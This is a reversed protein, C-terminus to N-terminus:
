NKEHKIYIKFKSGKNLESEVKIKGGMAEVQNKTIFLGIGRADKNGHFTKYMGFLKSGNRKLDIGIGNDEIELVVFEAKVSASFSIIPAREMSRYKIGNTIFNLLISDIYAPIALVVIDSNVNNRITVGAEKALLSVNGTASEIANFLNIPVLKEEFTTNILVVENLNAITEKLNDTAKKLLQIYHDEAVGENEEIYLDLVMDINGTHSRLNHSVIHAFNKLRENQDTTIELLSKLEKAAKKIESIDTAIGIFGTVTGQLNRVATVVLQVPFASGDKRVYTWEHSFYENRKAAEAFVDFGAVTKGYLASFEVGSKIVEEPLHIKAPTEIGIMEAASYQLLMEAGKNFHTILGNIDTGIISVYGANLLTSLEENLIHLSERSKKVEDIDQFIGYLRKCVKDKFEAQGIIRVWLTNGKQTILEAEIDFTKGNAIAEEIAHKVTARSNGEKYFNIGGELEPEFDADAEHIERTIRSYKIKKDILDIEWTGIRAVENTKDLIEEVRRKDREKEKSHTIDATYMLIGGINGESIYWPRVDWTIWQLSGDAREFSAEDCQNIAGNLCARHIAKWDEGIEPFIEYHSHGIIEKGALQYDEIWRKSAALYRMGKDFMAIANPAERIFIKNRENSERLVLEAQKQPTIDRLITSIGVIKGASDKIASFTISVNIKRQDKRIRITEHQEVNEGNLIKSLLMKEESLLEPPFLISIHKGRVEEFTYGLIKEAGKNWTLITGNLNKSIIADSSSAIIIAMENMKKEHERRESVDRIAASVYIGDNVHIPSISIEVPFERGNKHLGFLELGAGMPRAGPKSFFGTRQIQHHDRFRKPMLIEIPNGLLDHKSYGFLRETQANVIQIIGSQDIIVIADPASELLGKFKNESLVLEKELNKITTIDAVHVFFGRIEGDVIDPFYNAISNRKEGTPITIEREFQQPNGKLVENIYPLNKEYLPGLLERMTTKDVMEERSKGFWEVYANNAFRCVQDKDWYALMANIHDAVTLGLNNIDSLQHDSSKIGKEM